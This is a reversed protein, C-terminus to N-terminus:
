KQKYNFGVDKAFKARVNEFHAYKANGRSKNCEYVDHNKSSCGACGIEIQEDGSSISEISVEEEINNASLM